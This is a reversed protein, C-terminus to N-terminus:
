KALFASERTWSSIPPLVVKHKKNLTEITEALAEKAKAESDAEVEIFAGYYSFIFKSM